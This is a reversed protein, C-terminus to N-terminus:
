ETAATSDVENRGGERPQRRSPRADPVSRPTPDEAEGGGLEVSDDVVGGAGAVPARYEAEYDRPLASSTRAAIEPTIAPDPRAVLHAPAEERQEDLLKEYAALDFGHGLAAPWDRPGARRRRPEGAGARADPRGAPLRRRERRAPTSSTGAGGHLRPPGARGSPPRVSASRADPDDAGDDFEEMTPIAAMAPGWGYVEGTKTDRLRRM